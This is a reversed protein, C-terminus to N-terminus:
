QLAPHQEPNRCFRKRQAAEKQRVQEKYWKWFDGFLVIRRHVQKVTPEAKPQKQPKM